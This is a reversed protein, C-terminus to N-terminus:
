REIFSRIMPWYQYVVYISGYFLGWRFGSKLWTRFSRRGHVIVVKEQIRAVPTRNSRDYDSTLWLGVPWRIPRTALWVYPSVLSGSKQRIREPLLRYIRYLVWIGAIFFLWGIFPISVLGWFSTWITTLATSIAVWISNLVTWIDM